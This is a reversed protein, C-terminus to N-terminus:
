QMYPDQSIVQEFAALLDSYFSTPQSLRALELIEKALAKSAQPDKRKSESWLLSRIRAQLQPFPVRRIKQGQRGQREQRMSALQSLARAAPHVARRIGDNDRRRLRRQKSYPRGM